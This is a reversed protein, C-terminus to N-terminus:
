RRRTVRFDVHKRGFPKFDSADLVVTQQSNGCMAYGDPVTLRAEISGGLPVRFFANGSKSLTTGLGATGVRVDVRADRLPSDLGPQYRGDCRNDVFGRLNLTGCPEGAGCGITQNGGPTPTALVAAESDAVLNDLLIGEGTPKGPLSIFLFELYASRGRLDMRWTPDLRDRLATLDLRIGRAWSSARGTASYVTRRETAIGDPTFAVFNIFLGENPAADAWIDFSLALRAAALTDSLDLYLLASAAAQGPYSAGCSLRSGDLGGGVAWLARSGGAPHCNRPSWVYEGNEQGTLDLVQVWRDPNPWPTGEFDDILLRGLAPVALPVADPAPSPLPLGAIGALTAADVPALGDGAAAAQGPGHNALGVLLATLALVAPLGTGVGAALRTRSARANM